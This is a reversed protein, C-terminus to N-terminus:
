RDPLQSLKNQANIFDELYTASHNDPSQVTTSITNPITLSKDWAYKEKFEFLAKYILSGTSSNDTLIKSDSM